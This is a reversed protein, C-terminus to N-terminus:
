LSKTKGLRIKQGFFDQVAYWENIEVPLIKRKLDFEKNLKEAVLKPTNILVGDIDFGLVCKQDKLVEKFTKRPLLHENEM